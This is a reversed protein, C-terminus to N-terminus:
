QITWDSRAIVSEPITLGMEASSKLNIALQYKPIVEIQKAPTRGKLIEVAKLGSLYGWTEYNVGLGLAAGKKIQSPDTVFIPIKNETALKVLVPLGLYVTNDASAVFVDIDKNLLSQAALMLDNVSNVPAKEIDIGRRTFEESLIKVSYEANKEANNYPIGIRKLEPICEFLLDAFESAKISDYMGFVNKLEGKIGVQQPSFAVTFVVPRDKVLQAAAAMCPTSNTIIMDVNQTLLSQIITTIMSLDGHANNDIIKIKEGDKFGSDALAKFVGEKALNLAPDDTIQVFGITLKKETPQCSLLCASVALLLFLFKSKM